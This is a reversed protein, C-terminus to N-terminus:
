KDLKKIEVRRWIDIKNKTDPNDNNLEIIKLTHGKNKEAEIKKKCDPNNKNCRVILRFHNDILEQHEYDMEPLADNVFSEYEENM